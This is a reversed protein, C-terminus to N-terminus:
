EDSSSDFDECVGEVSLALQHMRKAFSRYRRSIRDRIEDDEVKDSKLMLWDYKLQLRYLERAEEADKPYKAFERDVTFYEEKSFDGIEALLDDVVAVREDVRELFRNFVRYAFKTDGEKLMDDLDNQFPRFAEVDSQYFYVKRADLRKLFM